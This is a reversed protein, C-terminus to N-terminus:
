EIDQDEHITGIRPTSGMSDSMEKHQSSTEHQQALLNFQKMMDSEEKDLEEKKWNLSSDLRVLKGHGNKKKRNKKNSTIEASGSRRGKEKKDKQKKENGNGNGNVGLNKVSHMKEFNKIKDLGFDNNINQMLSADYYPNPSGEPTENGNSTGNGNMDMPLLINKHQEKQSKEIGRELIQRFAVDLIEKPQMKDHNHVEKGIYKIFFEINLEKRQHLHKGTLATSQSLIFHTFLKHLQQPQFHENVGVSKMCTEFEPFDLTQSDEAENILEQKLRDLTSTQIYPIHLSKFYLCLM